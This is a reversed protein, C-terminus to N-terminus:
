HSWHSFYNWNWVSDDGWRFERPSPAHSGPPHTYPASVYAQGDGPCSQSGANDPSEHGCHKRGVSRRFTSCSKTKVGGCFPNDTETEPPYSTPPTPPTIYGSVISLYLLPFDPFLLLFVSFSFSLSFYINNENLRNTM